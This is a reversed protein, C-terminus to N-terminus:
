WEGCVRRAFHRQAADRFDRRIAETLVIRGDVLDCPRGVAVDSLTIYVASNVPTHFSGLLLADFTVVHADSVRHIYTLYSVVEKGIGPMLADEVVRRREDCQSALFREHMRSQVADCKCKHPSNMCQWCISYTDFPLVKDCCVTQMASGYPRVRQILVGDIAEEEVKFEMNDLIDSAHWECQSDTRSVM